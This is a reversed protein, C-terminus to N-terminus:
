MVRDNTDNEFSSSNQIELVIAGSTVTPPHIVEAHITESITYGLGCLEDVFTGEWIRTFTIYTQKFWRGVTIQSGM